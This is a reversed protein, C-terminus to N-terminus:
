RNYGILAVTHEPYLENCVLPGYTFICEEAEAVNPHINVLTGEEIRYALAEDFATQSPQHALWFPNGDGLVDFNTPYSTEPPLGYTKLLPIGGLNPDHPVRPDVFIGGESATAMQFVYNLFAYSPDPSYPAEVEKLIENVHLMSYGICGGHDDQDHVLTVYQEYSVADPSGLAPQVCLLLLLVSAASFAVFTLKM